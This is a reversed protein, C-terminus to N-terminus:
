GAGLPWDDKREVRWCRSYPKEEPGAWHLWRYVDNEDDQHGLERSCRIGFSMCETEDPPLPVGCIVVEGTNTKKTTAEKETEGSM